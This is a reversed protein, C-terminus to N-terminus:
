FNQNSIIQRAVPGIPRRDANTAAGAWALSGNGPCEQFRSQTMNTKRAVTTMRPQCGRQHRQTETRANDGRYRVSEAYKSVSRASYTRRDTFVGQASPYLWIGASRCPMEPAWGSAIFGLFRAPTGAESGAAITRLCGSRRTVPVGSAARATVIAPQGM